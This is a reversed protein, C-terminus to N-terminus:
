PSFLCYLQHSNLYWGTVILLFILPQALFEYQFPNKYLNNPTVYFFLILIQSQSESPLFSVRSRRGTFQSRLDPVQSGKIKKSDITYVKRGCKCWWMLTLKKHLFNNTFCNNTVEAHFRSQVVDKFICISRRQDLGKIASTPM